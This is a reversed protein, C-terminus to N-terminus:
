RVADALPVHWDATPSAARDLADAVFRVDDPWEGTAVATWAGTSADYDLAIVHFHDFTVALQTVRKRGDRDVRGRVWYVEYNPDAQLVKSDGRALPRSPLQDRLRTAERRRDDELTPPM